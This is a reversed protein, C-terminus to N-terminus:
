NMVETLKVTERSLKQKWSKDIASLTTNFDGVIIAHPAIHAKLKALTETIFTPARSNPAYINLISFEDQYIKEKVLTFHGEKDKKSLKQNSTSKINSHSNWRTEQSWKSPFNNELRKNQPLYHRDKDSFYM